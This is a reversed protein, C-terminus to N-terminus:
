GDVRKPIVRIYYKNKRLPDIIIDGPNKLQYHNSYFDLLYKQGARASPIKIGLYGQRVPKHFYLKQKSDDAVTDDYELISVDSPKNPISGDELDVFIQVYDVSGADEPEAWMTYQFNLAKEPQEGEIRIPFVIPKQGADRIKSFDESLEYDVADPAKYNDRRLIQRPTKGETRKFSFGKPLPIKEDCNSTQHCIEWLVQIPKVLDGDLEEAVLYLYKDNDNLDLFPPDTYFWSKKTRLSHEVFLKIPKESLSKEVQGLKSKEAQYSPDSIDIRWSYQSSKPIVFRYRGFKDTLSSFIYKRDNPLVSQKTEVIRVRINQLIWNNADVVYGVVEIGEVLSENFIEFIAQYYPDSDSSDANDISCESKSSEDLRSWCDVLERVFGVDIAFARKGLSSTLGAVVGVVEGSEGSILPAGSSGESIPNSFELVKYNYEPDSEALKKRVELFSILERFGGISPLIDVSSTASNAPNSIIIVEKGVALKDSALPLPEVVEALPFPDIKLLALDRKVDIAVLSVDSSYEISGDAPLNDQFYEVKLKKQGRIVHFNTVVLAMDTPLGNYKVVFGSGHSVQSNDLYALVKVVATRQNEISSSAGSDDASVSGIVLCTLLLRVFSFLGFCIKKM